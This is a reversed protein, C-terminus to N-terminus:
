FGVHQKKDCWLGFCPDIEYSKKRMPIKTSNEFEPEVFSLQAKSPSTASEASAYKTGCYVENEPGQVKSRGASDNGRCFYEPLNSEGVASFQFPCKEPEKLYGPGHIVLCFV